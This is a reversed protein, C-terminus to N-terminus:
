FLFKRCKYGDCRTRCLEKPTEPLQSVTIMCPLCSGLSDVYTLMRVLTQRTIDVNQVLQRIQTCNTVKRLFSAYPLLTILMDLSFLNYLTTVKMLFSAHAPITILMFLSSM